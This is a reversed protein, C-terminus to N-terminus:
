NRFSKRVPGKNKSHEFAKLRKVCSRFLFYCFSYPGVKIMQELVKFQSSFKGIVVDEVVGPPEIDASQSHRM